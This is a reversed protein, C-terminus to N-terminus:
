NLLVRIMQVVSDGGRTGLFGASSEASVHDSGYGRMTHEKRERGKKWGEWHM